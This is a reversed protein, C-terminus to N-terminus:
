KVNIQVRLLLSQAVAKAAVTFASHKAFAHGSIPYQTRLFHTILHASIWWWNPECVTLPFRTLEITKIDDIMFM